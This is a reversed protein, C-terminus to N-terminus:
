AEQFHPRDPSKWRGGWVLGCSEGILGIEEWDNLDNENIDCKLNWVFQKDKVFAVDFARAKDNGADQDDLCTIHLSNLTWTVPRKNEEEKLKWLGVLQRMSNVEDLPRRGQAYLAAQEMM